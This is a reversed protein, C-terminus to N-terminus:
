PSCYSVIVNIVSISELTPAIRYVIANIVYLPCPLLPFAVAAASFARTGPHGTLNRTTPSTIRLHHSHTYADLQLDDEEEEGSYLGWAQCSSSPLIQGRHIGRPIPPVFVDTTTLNGNGDIISPLIEVFRCSTNIFLIMVWGTLVLLFAAHWWYSQKQIRHWISSSKYSFLSADAASCYSSIRARAPAPSPTSRSSNTDNATTSTTRM